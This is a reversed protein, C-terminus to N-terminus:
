ELVVRTVADGGQDADAPQFKTVSPHRALHERIATRLAGTGHGHLVFATDWERRLAEDLFKDLQRLADDVREGRLDLTNESTRLPGAPASVPAPTPVRVGSPPRSPTRRGELKRLDEVAVMTRLAGAQVLVHGRAPPAVVTGEGGWSTIIVKMGPVIDEESVPVGPMERQPAHRALTEVAKSVAADPDRTRRAGVRLRDLEARVARLAEVAEDYSKQHLQRTRDRLERANADLAAQAREAQRRLEELRAREEELRRREDALSVLINEISAEEAGLLSEARVVVQPPM